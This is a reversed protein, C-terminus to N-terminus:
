GIYSRDFTIVSFLPEGTARLAADVINKIESNKMKFNHPVVIDFILNTHSEGSVLRFDHFSLTEDISSVIDAVVTRFRETQGCANDVPDMHIVFPIGLESQVQRELNDIHDHAYVMDMSAPIEVHVSGMLRGPGYDHIILDHIGICVPNARLVGKINEVLKPDPPGGLLPRLTEMLIKYGAWLILLGVLLGLYGDVNISFVGYFVMGVLTAATSICDSKSDAAAAAMATSDIKKGITGYFGGMWFKIGISAALGVIILWNFQIEEPTIIKQFSSKVIEVGVMVVLVAIVMGSLYEFRGHGFPHDEDPPQSALKFGFYTVLNSGIDSLNNFADATIAISGSFYGLAFKLSFLLFNCFMGVFSSLNGYKKRVEPNDTQDKNKIFLKSLLETM